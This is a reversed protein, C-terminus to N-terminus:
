KDEEVMPTSAIIRRWEKRNKAERKAQTWSMGKEKLINGIAANWKKTPRGRRRKVGTETEWVVKVTRDENMRVLHGFWRLQQTEIKEIVSKVKLNRRITENRVKDLKTVGEIKRLIKMECATIRSKLYNTLVWSECGYILTPVLVSEYVRRKTEKTIERKNFFTKYLTRYVANVKNIRNLIEDKLRGQSDTMTGLYKIKKVEKIKTGDIQIELEEAENAITMIESKGVNVKLGFKGLIEVWKQIRKEM